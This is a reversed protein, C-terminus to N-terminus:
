NVKLELWFPTKNLIGDVCDGENLTDIRINFQDVWFMRIEVDNDPSNNTIDFSLDDQIFRGTSGEKIDRLLYSGNDRYSFDIEDLTQEHPILTPPNDVTGSQSLLGKLKLTGKM